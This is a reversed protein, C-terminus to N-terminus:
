RRTPQILNASSNEVYISRGEVIMDFRINGGSGGFPVVTKVSILARVLGNIQLLYVSGSKPGLIYSIEYALNAGHNNSKQFAEDFASWSLTGLLTNFDTSTMSKSVTIMGSNLYSQDWYNIGGPVQTFLSIDKTGFTSAEAGNAPFTLFTNAGGSETFFLLALSKQEATANAFSISEGTQPKLFHGYTSNNQAGLTINSYGALWNTPIVTGPTVVVPTIVPTDVVPDDKKCSSAVLAITLVSQLLLLKSIKM